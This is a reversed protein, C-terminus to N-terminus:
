DARLATLPDVRTARLAPVLCAIVAVLLAFVAMLAYTAPDTASTDYLLSRMVQTAGFAATVGAVVGILALILGEKLVLTFVESRRAGLALRVGLERTRQEVSYAIVGYIGAAALLAAVIAFLAFLLTNLRREATLNGLLQEVTAVHHVPQSRDISAVVGRISSALAAPDSASRVVMMMGPSPSQAMPVYTEPRIPADYGVRRTDGVVGVITLWPANPTPPGGYMFRRGIPSEGPWFRKAMSENIIAVAPAQATDSATFERGSKVPIGMTAFYGPAVSDFPVEVSEAATFPPRGEISFNTSNPTSSLFLTSILSAGDVGPLARVQEVTRMFFDNVAAPQRYANGSLTVQLTLVRAPDFGIDVRQLRLFSQVMLGAGTLLVLALAVQVVVLTRRVVRGVGSSASRGGEKLAQSLGTRSIQLAPVLGFVLGTLLAIGFTFAIVRADLTIDALRPLEPPAIAVLTRMGLWALGVGALGGVLALVASETLLQRILRLRGAGIATRLAVERERVSARSLLLNAVNVCAILLLFAVAGLLAIIAPRTRAVLGDHYGAVYIGYGDQGPFRRIIDANIPELDAQAQAVTIGPKMRGISMLWLSSRATRLQESPALPVWFETTPLPFAFGEPMVGIVQRSRGNLVLSRGIAHEDGAFARMWLKHSLVIVGDQQPQDEKENFVRGLRPQVGLVAFLNASNSAGAVMQADGTGSISSNRNRFVAIAEFTRNAARYDQINPISHWDEKLGMRTNNMWVMALRDANPYPLPKLLVGNAVGFITSTAGIGLAITLLAILSFVPQRRMLRLAFRIDSLTAELVGGGRVEYGQDQLSPMNGVQRLAAARADEPSMGRRVYDATALDVHHALEDHIEGTVHDRGFLARLRDRLIRFWRM